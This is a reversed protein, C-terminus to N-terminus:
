SPRPLNLQGLKATLLDNLRDLDILEPHEGTTTATLPANIPEIPSPIGGTFDAPAAAPTAPLLPQLTPLATDVTHASTSPAIPAVPSVPTPNVPAVAQPRSALAELQTRISRIEDTLQDVRKDPAAATAKGSSSGRAVSKEVDVLRQNLQQLEQRLGELRQDVAELVLHVLRAIKDDPTPEAM